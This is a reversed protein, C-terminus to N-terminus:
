RGSHTLLYGGLGLGFGLVAGMAPGWHRELKAQPAIDQFVSYLIGGAAFLMIAAVTLPSQALAFYGLVGALPGLLAMFTFAITIRRPSTKRNAQLEHFANYGEPLNQLAIMGALMWGARTPGLAFMAGLAISEPVFDSLMAAMQSARTNIKFLWIDLAMFALGGSFFYALAPGPPLSAIGEPVLVLAVASILAGGGFAMVSHRLESDAREQKLRLRALLAGLPMTLGAALALLILGTISPVLPCSLTEPPPPCRRKAQGRPSLLFIPAAPNPCIAKAVPASPPTQILERM